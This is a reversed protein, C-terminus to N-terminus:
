LISVRDNNTAIKATADTSCQNTHRSSFLMVNLAKVLDFKLMFLFAGYYYQLWVVLFTASLLSAIIISKLELRVVTHLDWKLVMEELYEM